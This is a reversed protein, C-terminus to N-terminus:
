DSSNQKGKLEKIKLIKPVILMEAITDGFIASFYKKSSKILETAISFVEEFYEDPCDEIKGSFLSTEVEFRFEQKALLALHALYEPPQKIDSVYECIKLVNRNQKDSIVVKNKYKEEQFFHSYSDEFRFSRPLETFGFENANQALFNLNFNRRNQKMIDKKYIDDNLFIFCCRRLSMKKLSLDLAAFKEIDNPGINKQFEYVNKVSVNKEDDYIYESLSNKNIEESIYFM